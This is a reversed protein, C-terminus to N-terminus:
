ACSSSRCRSARTRACGACNPRWTPSARSRRRRTTTSPRRPRRAGRDPLGVGRHRHGVGRRRPRRRDLGLRLPTPWRGPPRGPRGPGGPRPRRDALAFRRRAARVAPQRDPRPAGRAHVAAGRRGAAGAARGRRRAPDPHRAVEAGRRRRRPRPQHRRAGRHRALPGRARGPAPAHRRDGARALRGGARVDRVACLVGCGSGQGEARGDAARGRQAGVAPARVHPQRGGPHQARQSADAVAHLPDAVVARRGVPFHQPFNEINDVSAGRWGYIAQCPDGVAMVPHGDGFARQLLVRQAISTDQYEDLLVVGYRERLDAVVDPFRHVIEGALRIQDAFDLVDRGAKEARWQDVLAALVSRRQSTALMDRGTKQLTGLSALRAAMDDDYARLDAPEIGLETLEDDLRLLDGTVSVPQRGFVSLPLATRCVVRYALQQRAGDTLMTAGPERGLRIGHESLIRASFAHYTLVQPEGIPDGDADSAEILGDAVLAGVSARMSGLLQAAAKTTFTLGLVADPRAYGSGVLWAVRAAMSTTKGSGAGAVIVAPDLGTSVAAWQQDTLTKGLVTDLRARSLEARPVDTPELTTM